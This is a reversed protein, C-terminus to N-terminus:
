TRTDSPPTKSSTNQNDYALVELRVIEQRLRKAALDRTAALAQLTEQNM